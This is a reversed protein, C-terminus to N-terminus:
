YMCVPSPVQFNLCLIWLTEKYDALCSRNGRLFLFCLRSVMGSASELSVRDEKGTGKNQMFIYGEPVISGSIVDALWDEFSRVAQALVEFNEEVFKDDIDKRVKMTPLLGADLIIHESLAPGYSLAEGLISKLTAKNLQNKSNAEKTSAPSNKSKSNSQDNSKENTDEIAKPVSNKNAPEFSALSSKLKVLDTRQFARCAEIPYRHRSMIALGKDDDRCFTM